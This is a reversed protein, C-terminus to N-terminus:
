PFLKIVVTRNVQEPTFIDVGGKGKIEINKDSVGRLKLEKVIYEARNNSLTHNIEVTGTAKDAFGTVHVKLNYQKVVKVLEDLNALQSADTLVTTGIKFFFMIPSGICKKHKLMLYVNRPLRVSDRDSMDGQKSQELIENLLSTNVSVTDNIGPRSYISDIGSSVNQFDNESQPDDDLRIRKLLSNLGSYSNSPYYYGAKDLSDNPLTIGNKTLCAQIEPLLGKIELIKRLQALIRDKDENEKSLWINKRYLDPEYCVHKVYSNKREKFRFTLGATIHFMNDKLTGNSGIGDFDSFSSFGGLELTFSLLDNIRILNQLGYHIAFNNKNATFNSVLGTGIFPVFEWRVKNSSYQRSPNWLVDMFAGLYKNHNINGNIFDVGQFTVRGGISRNFWKGASLSFVPTVRGFLDECGLPSGIFATVGVSPNIFWESTVNNDYLYTSCQNNNESSNQSDTFVFEPKFQVYSINNIGRTSTTGVDLSDSPITNILSTLFICTSLLTTYM